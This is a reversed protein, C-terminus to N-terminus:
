IIRVIWSDIRLLIIAFLFTYLTYNINNYSFNNNIFDVKTLINKHNMLHSARHIKLVVKSQPLIYTSYNDPETYCMVSQSFSHRKYVEM